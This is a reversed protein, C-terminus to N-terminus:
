IPVLNTSAVSGELPSLPYCKVGRKVEIIAIGSGVAIEDDSQYVDLLVVRQRPTQHGQQGRFRALADNWKM